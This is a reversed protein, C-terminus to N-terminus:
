PAVAETTEEPVLRPRLDTKHDENMFHPDNKIKTNRIRSTIGFGPDPSKWGPDQTLFSELDRIPIRM